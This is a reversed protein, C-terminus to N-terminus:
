KVAWFGAQMHSYWLIEVVRFGTKRLLALHQEINIPYYEEGYRSLHKEVTDFSRGSRVQFLGWRALGAQVGTETFPAVNEFTVYLGNEALADYVVKTANEREPARMYHHSQIATVVNAKGTFVKRLETTGAPELFDIRGGTIGCLKERAQELMAESPDALLFRTKPFNDYAHLILDGTGAGTDLWVPCEPAQVRVLDITEEAFRAYNPITSRVQTDYVGSSHPTSNDNPM